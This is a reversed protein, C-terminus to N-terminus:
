CTVIGKIVRTGWKRMFDMRMWGTILEGDEGPHRVSLEFEGLIFCPEQNEGWVQEEGLTQWILMVM